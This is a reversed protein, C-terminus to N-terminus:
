GEPDLRDRGSRLPPYLRNWAIGIGQGVQPDDFSQRFAGDSERSLPHLPQERPTGALDWRAARVNLDPLEPLFCVFEARKLPYAIQMGNVPVFTMGTDALTIEFEVEGPEGLEYQKGLHIFHTHWLGLADYENRVGLHSQLPDTSLLKPQIKTPQITPTGTWQFPYVFMRVYPRDTVFKVRMRWTTSRHDDDDVMLTSCCETWLCGTRSPEDINLSATQRTALETYLRTQFRDDVLRSALKAIARRELTKASVDEAWDPHATRLREVTPDRRENVPLSRTAFYLARLLEADPEDLEAIAAVLARRVGSVRIEWPTRVLFPLWLLAYQDEIAADTLPTRLRLDFLAAM